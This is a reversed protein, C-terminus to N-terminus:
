APIVPTFTEVLTTEGKSFSLRVAENFSLIKPLHVEKDSENTVAVDPKALAAYAEEPKKHAWMNELSEVASSNANSIPVITCRRSAKPTPFLGEESVSQMALWAEYQTWFRSPYSLDLLILVPMGVYLHNINHLMYNFHAKEALSKKRGPLAQPM